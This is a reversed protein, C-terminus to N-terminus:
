PRLSLDLADTKESRDRVKKRASSVGRRAFRHFRRTFLYAGVQYLRGVPSFVTIHRDYGAGAGRSM